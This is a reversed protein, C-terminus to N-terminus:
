HLGDRNEPRYLWCIPAGWDVIQDALVPAHREGISMLTVTGRNDLLRMVRRLIFPGNHVKVAAVRGVLSALPAQGEYYLVDGVEFLPFYEDSICRIASGGEDFGPPAPATHAAGASAGIVGAGRLELDVMLRRLAALRRGRLEDSTVARALLKSAGAALLEYTEDTLTRSKESLFQALASPSLDAAACLGRASLNSSKLFHRLAARRQTPDYTM